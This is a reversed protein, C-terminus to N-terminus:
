SGRISGAPRLPRDDADDMSVSRGTRASAPGAGGLHEIRVVIEPMAPRQDPATATCDMALRLMEVMEEEAGPHRLLETDFVESTWEERVVSRAWRPLDVGEDDQLVAHTPAKGTLLELLLVGFSYVDAKQSLRWPDAVVEPARYGAVRNSQAGAPGVLHALGHDAVRADVSRGLLINSSKINGHVVKSGTAHIYELGRASALAIRRRSEWSLPSRGSGRNGHLMSSLSGMAVFEYVMLKEDKSFYYAQLPVVNPHDLGGIAAVKDRFEREPLSTEKLRKVAVVLGSELAAKYTTGYTGKGLVEASARLLDELDYPRPVRGFFFLKKKGAINAAVAPQVTPAVPPPPPPRADSVRPTYVSPSMAEKSHLALEAAVDHSPHHRPKRQLAGCALVLVAAVLLFGFACGIVIGAIAGGALRRGGRGRGGAQVAGEPSLAPAQSPPISIPTRCTPLPKGCLPMGLFSTAPMASLSDPIEGTLNNFSVNFSTLLPMNVKPLEGTLLNGDLYLLQLKGNKAISPPIRGSFRNDALNLQTLAPLTLIETPLEGSFHNSQVNIVRLDACKALDSPLPGSLANYRLSLVALKDLNGLAGSPVNGRLGDGPLHVETVRGGSCVVGTWSCTPQSSNWSVSASGFPALFAM